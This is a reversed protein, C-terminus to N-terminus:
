EEDALNSACDECVYRGDDDYPYGTYLSLEGCESVPRGCQDCREVPPAPVARRVMILEQILPVAVPEPSAAPKADAPRAPSNGILQRLIAEKRVIGEASGRVYRNIVTRTIRAFDRM